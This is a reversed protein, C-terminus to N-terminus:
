SLAKPQSYAFAQVHVRVQQEALLRQLLGDEAVFTNWGEHGHLRQRLAEQWKALKFEAAAEQGEGGAETSITTNIHFLESVAIAFGVNPARKGVSVADGVAGAAIGQAAAQLSSNGAFSSVVQEWLSRVPSCGPSLAHRVARLVACHMSSCNPHHVAIEVCRPLAGCAAVVEGVAPCEARLLQSLLEAM